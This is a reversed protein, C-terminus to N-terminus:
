KVILPTTEALGGRHDFVMSKVNKVGGKLLKYLQFGIYYWYQEM